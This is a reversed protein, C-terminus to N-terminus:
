FWENIEERTALTDNNHDLESFLQNLSSKVLPSETDENPFLWTINSHGEPHLRRSEEKLFVKRPDLDSELAEQLLM